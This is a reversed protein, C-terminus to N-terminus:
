LRNIIGILYGITTIGRKKAINHAERLKHETIGARFVLTWVLKGYIPELETCLEQFEYSHKTPKDGVANKLLDKDM